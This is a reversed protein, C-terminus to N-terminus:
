CQDEEEFFESRLLESSRPQALKATWVHLKWGGTVVSFKCFHPRKRLVSRQRHPRHSLELNAGDHAGQSGCLADITSAFLHSKPAERAHALSLSLLVFLMWRNQRVPIYLYFFCNPELIYNIKIPCCLSTSSPLTRKQNRIEVSHVGALVPLLQLVASMRVLSSPTANYQQHSQHLKRSRLAPLVQIRRREFCTADSLM